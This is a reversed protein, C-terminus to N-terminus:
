PLAPSGDPLRAQTWQEVEDRAPFQAALREDIDVGFGPKDNPYMYGDRVVPLGPFVEYMRESFCCWEHIGFNPSSLELHLNGAHGLPSTDGPGHWATRVGYMAAFAAVNRAPTIGGMQSIHMRIFDIWRNVILPQWEFPHNFLEGMALATSSQERIRAFWASQEPPLADELFFL